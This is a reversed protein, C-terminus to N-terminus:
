SSVTLLENVQEAICCVEPVFDNARIKVLTDRRLYRRLSRIKLLHYLVEILIWTHLLCRLGNGTLM